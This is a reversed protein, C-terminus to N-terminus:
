IQNEVIFDLIENTVVSWSDVSESYDSNSLIAARKSNSSFFKPSAFSQKKLGLNIEYKQVLEQPIIIDLGSALSESLKLPSRTVNQESIKFPLISYRYSSYVRPIDSYNIPGLYSVGKPLKIPSKGEGYLHLYEFEPLQSIHLLFDWDIRSDIAGAYVIGKSETKAKKSCQFAEDYGNSRILTPISSCILSDLIGKNTVIISSIFKMQKNILNLNRKTPNDTLRLVVKANKPFFRIYRFFLPQDLIIFDSEAELVQRVGKGPFFWSIKLQLPLFSLPIKLNSSSNNVSKRIRLKFNEDKRKISIAAIRHFISCPTSVHIVNIGNESLKDFLHHSGM